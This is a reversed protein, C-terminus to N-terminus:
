GFLKRGAWASDDFFSCRLCINICVFHQEFDFGHLNWDVGLIGDLYNDLAAMPILIGMALLVPVAYGSSAIRIAATLMRNKNIRRCYGLFIAIMLTILAAFFSLLFSNLALEQFEKNWSIEFYIIALRALIIVPFIFGILIPLICCCFALFASFGKLDYTPLATFRSSEKQYVRQRRRSLKELAIILTCISFHHRLRLEERLTVMGLWVDILGYTM